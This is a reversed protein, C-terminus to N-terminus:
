MIEHYRIVFKLMILIFYLFLISLERESIVKHFTGVFRNVIINIYCSLPIKSCSKCTAEENGQGKNSITVM